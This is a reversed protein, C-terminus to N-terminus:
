KKIIFILSYIKQATVTTSFPPTYVAMCDAEHKAKTMGDSLVSM